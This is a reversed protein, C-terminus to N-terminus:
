MADVAAHGICVASECTVKFFMLTLCSAPADTIATHRAHGGPDRSIGRGGWFIYKPLSFGYKRTEPPPPCYVKDGVVAYVVYM